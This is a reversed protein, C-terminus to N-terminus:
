WGVMENWFGFSYIFWLFVNMFISFCLKIFSVFFCKLILVFLSELFCKRLILFIVVLDIFYKCWCKEGKVNVISCFGFIIDKNGELKRLGEFM